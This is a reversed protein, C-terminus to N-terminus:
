TTFARRLNRITSASCARRNRSPTRPVGTAGFAPISAESLIEAASKKGIVKEYALWTLHPILPDNADEKHKMLAHVLETVDHKGSLRIAASALERRVIPYSEKGALETIRKANDLGSGTEALARVLAARGRADYGPPTGPRSKQMWEEHHFTEDIQGLLQKEDAGGAAHHWWDHGLSRILENKTKVELAGWRENLLRGATRVWYPTPSPNGPTNERTIDRLKPGASRQGPGHAGIWGRATAVLEEDSWKALDFPKCAKQDKLQIRYVRGREYDLDEPKAQHCPNQDHWDILYIDGPM